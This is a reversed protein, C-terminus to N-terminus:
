HVSAALAAIPTGEEFPNGLEEAEKADQGALFLEQAAAAAQDKTLKKRRKIPTVNAPAVAEPAELTATIESQQLMSFKGTIREDVGAASSITFKIEVSGGEIPTIKFNKIKCLDLKLHTDEKVGYEVTLKYGMLEDDIKIPYAVRSFRINPLDDVPLDMEKQVDDSDEAGLKTFLATRLSKHLLDLVKNNAMMTVALDIAPVNEEGHKEMRINVNDLKLTTATALEFQM